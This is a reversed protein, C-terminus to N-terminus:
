QARRPWSEVLTARSLVLWVKVPEFVNAPTTMAVLTVLWIVPVKLPLPAPRVPSFAECSVPVSGQRLQGTPDDGVVRGADGKAAREAAGDGAQAIDVGGAQGADEGNRRCV